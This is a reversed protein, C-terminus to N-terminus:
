LAVIQKTNTPVDVCLQHVKFVCPLRSVETSDEIRDLLKQIETSVGMLGKYSVRLESNRQEVRVREKLQREAIANWASTTRIADFLAIGSAKQLKLRKLKLELEEVQSHFLALELQIRRVRKKRSRKARTTGTALAKRETTCRM